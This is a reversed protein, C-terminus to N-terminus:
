LKIRDVRGFERFVTSKKVDIHCCNSVKRATEIVKGKADKWLYRRRLIRTRMKSNDNRRKM